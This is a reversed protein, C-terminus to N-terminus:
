SCRPHATATPRAPRLPTDSARLRGGDVTKSLFVRSFDGDECRGSERYGQRQYFLLNGLVKGDTFLRVKHLRLRRAAAEALVLLQGGVGGRQYRPLVAVAAVFVHDSRPSFSIYGLLQGASFILHIERRRIQTALEGELSVNRGRATRPSLNFSLDECAIVAAIDSAEALRYQM